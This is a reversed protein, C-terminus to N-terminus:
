ARKKNLKFGKQKEFKKVSTDIADRIDLLTNMYNMRINMNDQERLMSNILQEVQVPLNQTM